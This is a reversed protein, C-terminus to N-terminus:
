SVKFLERVLFLLSLFDYHNLPEDKAYDPMQDIRDIMVDIMGILEEKSPKDKDKVTIEIENGQDDVRLFNKWDGAYCKLKEPGGDVSIEGCECTVRDTLHYSEIISSCLRCKARHRVEFEQM